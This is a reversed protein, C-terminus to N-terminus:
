QCSDVVWKVQQNRRALTTSHLAHKPLLGTACRCLPVHSRLTCVMHHKQLLIYSIHLNQPNIRGVSSFVDDVDHEAGSVADSIVGCVAGCDRDQWFRLHAMPADWLLFCRKWLGDAGLAVERSEGGIGNTGYGEPMKGRDERGGTGLNRIMNWEWNGRQDVVRRWRDEDM